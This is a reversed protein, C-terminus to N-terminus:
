PKLALLRAILAEISAVSRFNDPTIENQPISIDFEVEAADCFANAPGIYRLYRFSTANTVAQATMTGEAPTNAVTSLTVVGSSFNAVNAGQFQGGVM